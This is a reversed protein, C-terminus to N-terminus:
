SEIRNFWWNRNVFISNINTNAYEYYDKSEIFSCLDLRKTGTGDPTYNISEICIVKPTYKKFDLSKIIDFDVGEADISLLDCAKDRFYKELIENILMVPIHLTNKLKQGSLILAKLESESFTNLSSEELIYFPLVAKTSGVGININVDKARVQNFKDIALPDADINVGTSGKLYFKYTNNGHVPDYGGIDIFSPLSVKRLGFLYEIIVDEGSQSFSSKYPVPASKKELFIFRIKKLVKNIM